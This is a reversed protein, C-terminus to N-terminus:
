RRRSCNQVTCVDKKSKCRQHGRRECGCVTKTFYSRTVCQSANSRLRHPTCRCLCELFNYSVRFWFSTGAQSSKINTLAIRRTIAPVINRRYTQIDHKDTHPRRPIHLPVIIHPHPRPRTLHFCVRGKRTRRPINRGSPLQPWSARTCRHPQILLYISQHSPLSFPVHWLPGGANALISTYHQLASDDWDARILLRFSANLFRRVLM